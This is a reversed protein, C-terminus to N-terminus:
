LMGIIKQRKLQLTRVHDFEDDYWAFDSVVGNINSVHTEDNIESQYIIIARRDNFPWYKVGIEGSIVVEDGVKYRM